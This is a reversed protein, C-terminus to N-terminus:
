WRTRALLRRGDSLRVSDRDRTTLSNSIEREPPTTVSKRKVRRGPAAPAECGVQRVAAGAVAALLSAARCADQADIMPLRM